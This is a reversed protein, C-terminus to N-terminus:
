PAGLVTDPDGHRGRGDHMLLVHDAAARALDAQHTSFVVAVGEGTLTRFRDALRTRADPDLHQEPEDMLILRRPRVLAAALFLAQKQGASFKSPVDDAREILGFVTLAEDARETAEAGLGHAAIVLELHERATLDPYFVPDGLVAAVDRRVERDNEDIDRSDFRVRGESPKERGALLRLLTSKGAGNAGVLALCEGPDVTFAVERLVDTGGYRHSVGDVRLLVPRATM